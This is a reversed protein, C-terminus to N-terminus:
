KRGATYLLDLANGIHRRASVAFPQDRDEILALSVRARHLHELIEQKEAADLSVGGSGAACAGSM